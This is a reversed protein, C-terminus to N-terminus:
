PLRIRSPYLTTDYALWMDAGSSAPVILKVELQHGVLLVVSVDFTVTRKVWATNGAQWDAASVTASSIELSLGLVTDHDRLFITVEGAVGPTFDTVASWFEVTVTGSISQGLLGAEPGGWKQYRTLTSESAGSGGRLVLRGPAADHDVDYNFLTAASPATANMALNAQANTDGVPPSPNNHLYYTTASFSAATSFSAPVSEADGFVALATRPGAGGALSGAAVAFAVALCTPRHVRVRRAVAALRRIGRANTSAFSVASGM